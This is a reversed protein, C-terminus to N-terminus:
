DEFGRMNRVGGGGTRAWRRVSARESTGDVMWGGGDVVWVLFSIEGLLFSGRHKRGSHGFTWTDFLRVVATARGFRRDM